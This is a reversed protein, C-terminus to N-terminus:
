FWKTINCIRQGQNVLILLRVSLWSLDVYVKYFDATISFLCISAKGTPYCSDSM